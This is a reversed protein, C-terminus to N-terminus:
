QLGAQSVQIASTGGLLTYYIEADGSIAM